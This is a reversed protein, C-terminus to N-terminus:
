LRPRCELEADDANALLGAYPDAASSDYWVRVVGPGEPLPAPSQVDGRVVALGIVKGDMVMAELRFPIGKSACHKAILGVTDGRASHMSCGSEEFKAQLAKAVTKSVRVEKALLADVDSPTMNAKVVSVGVDVLQQVIEAHEFLDPYNVHVQRQSAALICIPGQHTRLSSLVNGLTKPDMDDVVLLRQEGAAAERKLWKVPTDLDVGTVGANEFVRRWQAHTPLPAVLVAGDVARLMEAVFVQYGTGPVFPIYKSIM